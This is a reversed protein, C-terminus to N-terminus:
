KAAAQKKAPPVPLPVPPIAIDAEREAEGTLEINIQWLRDSEIQHEEETIKDEMALDSLKEEAKLYAEDIKDIVAAAKRDVRERRRDLKAVYADWQKDTMWDPQVDLEPYAPPTPELKPQPLPPPPPAPPPPPPLPEDQIVAAPQAYFKLKAWYALTLITITIIPISM